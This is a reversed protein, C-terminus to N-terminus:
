VALKKYYKAAQLGQSRSIWFFFMSSITRMKAFLDVTKIQRRQANAPSRCESTSGAWGRSGLAVGGVLVQTPGSAPLWYTMPKFVGRV